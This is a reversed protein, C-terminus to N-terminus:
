FAMAKALELAVLDAARGQEDERAAQAQQDAERQRGEANRRAEPDFEDVLVEYGDQFTHPFTPMLHPTLFLRLYM